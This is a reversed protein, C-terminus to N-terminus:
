KGAPKKALPDDLEGQMQELAHTLRAVKSAHEPQQALDTTELPDVTLHFLLKTNIKPYHILKWEPTSIMRQTDTYAGYMLPRGARGDLLPLVSQFEVHDPRDVGALELTTAMADQVYIPAAIKEGPKISPGAILFPTRVSHDYMNQKGLLGHHGCALGHDATFIIYTNDAKGTKELADLIRGIQQDMHTIIAYYEQRNVKVAYETRPFPALQEDRIRNSGIQYPYEALFPQPLSIKDLPYQEVFEQPSQRPDHPANFALYMFFPNDRGAARDLYDIADDALVASWHKGGEWFGGAGTDWPRWKQDDPGTPRNYGAPTQAPMGPRVHRSVTFVKNPDAKVHWKGSFYTDYGAKELLQPWLKGQAQFDSKLIPEAAKAHWLSRGSLLMTRSAVCIAGHWGGQNYCRTFQAGRKALRDLNPTHVEANGAAGLTDYAQDDAFIFLLNPRSEAATALAGAQMTVLCAFTSAALLQAARRRFSPQPITDVYTM